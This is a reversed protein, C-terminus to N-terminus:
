MGNKYHFDEKRHIDKSFNFRITNFVLYIALYQKNMSNKHLQLNIQSLKGLARPYKTQTENLMSSTIVKTNLMTRKSYYFDNQDHIFIELLPDWDSFNFVMYMSNTDGPDSNRPPNYTYCPGSNENAIFSKWNKDDTLVDVGFNEAQFRQTFNSLFSTRHPIM